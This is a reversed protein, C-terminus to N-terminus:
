NSHALSGAPRTPGCKKRHNRGFRGIFLALIRNYIRVTCGSSELADAVTRGGRASGWGDIQVQVKVGRGVARGLAEVFREGVGTPAFAYVELHVSRQAQEIATLMRPYAQEGGDLLDVSEPAVSTTGGTRLAITVRAESKGFCGVRSLIKRALTM